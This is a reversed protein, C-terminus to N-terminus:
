YEPVVLTMNVVALDIDPYRRFWSFCLGLTAANSLDVEKALSSLFIYYMHDGPQLTFVIEETSNGQIDDIEAIFQKSEGRNIIRLTLIARNPLDIETLDIEVWQRGAPLQVVIPSKLLERESYSLPITYFIISGLQHKEGVGELLQLSPIPYTEGRNIWRELVFVQARSANPYRSLITQSFNQLPDVSYLEKLVTGLILMSPDIGAYLLLDHTGGQPVVLDSDNLLSLFDLTSDVDEKRFYSYAKGCAQFDVLMLPSLLALVMVCVIASVRLNRIEFTKRLLRPSMPFKLKVERHLDYLFKLLKASGYSLVWSMYIVLRFLPFAVNMNTLNPIFVLVLSLSLITTPVPTWIATLFGLFALPLTSTAFMDLRIFSEWGLGPFSRPFLVSYFAGIFLGVGIALGVKRIHKQLFKLVKKPSYFFLFGVLISAALIFILIPVEIAPLTWKSITWAFIGFNSLLYPAALLFSLFLALILEISTRGPRFISLIIELVIIGYVIISVLSHVSLSTALFLSLAFSFWLRSNQEREFVQKRTILLLLIELFFVYGFNERIAMSFRRVFFPNLFLFFPALFGAGRGELRRVVLYTIISAMGALAPGGFRNISYLSIKTFVQISAFFYFFGSIGVNLVGQYRDVLEFPNLGGELITKTVPANIWPDWGRWYEEPIARLTLLFGILFSILLGAVAKSTNVLTVRGRVDPLRLLQPLLVLGSLVTVALLGGFMESETIQLFPFSLYVCVLMAIAVSIVVDLALIEDLRLRMRDGLVVAFYFGPALLFVLLRFAKLIDPAVYFVGCASLVWSLFLAMIPILLWLNNPRFFKRTLM